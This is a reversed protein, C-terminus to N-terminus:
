AEPLPESATLSAAELETALVHDGAIDDIEVAGFQPEDDFDITGNVGVVDELVLRAISGEGAQGDLDQAELSCTM